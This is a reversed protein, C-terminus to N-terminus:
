SALEVEPEGGLIAAVIRAAVEDPDRGPPLRPPEGAIARGALGTETHPPRVALLRVRRRRLERRAATDFALLGAKAASYVALGATPQEAVVGSISVVVSGERLLPAAAATLLVPVLLDVEVVHRAVEETLDEVPGFAVVGSCVVLGDLGGLAAHAEAVVGAAAGPGRLDAVVRAEAGCVDAVADLRGRDRGSLALRVGAAGLGAAVRSGLGGSAGTVLVRAREVHLGPWSM